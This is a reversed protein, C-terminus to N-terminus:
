TAHDATCPQISYTNLTMQKDGLKIKKEDRLIM